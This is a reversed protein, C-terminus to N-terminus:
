GKERGKGKEFAVFLSFLLSSIGGLVFSLVEGEKGIGEEGGEGRPSSISLLISRRSRSTDSKKGEKRGEEQAGLPIELLESRRLV